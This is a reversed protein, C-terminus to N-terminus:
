SIGGDVSVTSGTVYASLDSALWLVANGVEQPTGLRGLATKQGYRARMQEAQEPPMQDLAETAIVGLALTNFRLGQPGFEKALSRTLGQVAGKSATYHSRLPVGAEVAKSGINIISAGPSFRDLLAQTLLYPARVNTAMVRDWEDHELQDFPLHSITGANNVLTDVHSFEHGVIDAFHKVGEVTSLDAKEIIYKGGIADLEVKLKNAYADSSAYCTAVHAGARALALIIGKGVGRVAGTVVAHNGTLDISM